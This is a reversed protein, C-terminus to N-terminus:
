PSRTRSVSAIGAHRMAARLQSRTGEEVPVLPLRLEGSALEMMELAAKLPAPNTEAFLATILPALKESLIPASSDDGALLGHVLEGVLRPVLNAVVGVVGKAGLHIADTIWADEGALVDVDDREVLERVRELSTGAEKIAIVNAHARAIAGVTQPLLDVGTRPPINYLVLPLASTGAIAGFHAVLGRQQPKNYAPTAVLLGDAGAREAALALECAVRTDSAGVGAIVPV